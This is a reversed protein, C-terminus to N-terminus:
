PCYGPNCVCHTAYQPSSQSLLAALNGPVVHLLRSALPVSRPAGFSVSARAAVAVMPAPAAYCLGLEEQVSVQACVHVCACIRVFICVSMRVCARARVCVPAKVCM